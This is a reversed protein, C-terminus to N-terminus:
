LSSYQSLLSSMIGQVSTNFIPDERHSSNLVTTSFLLLAKKLNKASMKQIISDIVSPLYNLYLWSNDPNNVMLAHLIELISTSITDNSILGNNLIELDNQSIRVIINNKIHSQIQQIIQIKKNIDTNTALTNFLESSSVLSNKSLATKLKDIIVSNKTDLQLARKLLIIKTPNYTSEEAQTLM